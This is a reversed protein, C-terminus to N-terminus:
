AWKERDLAIKHIAQKKERPRQDLFTAIAADHWRMRYDEFANYNGSRRILLSRAVSDAAKVPDIVCGAVEVANGFLGLDFSPGSPPEDPFGKACGQLYDFIWRPLPESPVCHTLAEWVFLVNRTERYLTELELVIRSTSM